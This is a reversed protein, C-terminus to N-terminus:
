GKARVGTSDGSCFFHKVGLGELAKAVRAAKDAEVLAIVVGGRGAGSLKAGLAGATRLRWAIAEIEPSSAGMAYLLGQNMEMLEGLTAFDGAALREAAELVLEEAAQYIKEAIARRREYRELVGAVASGTSRRVGTDAILIKIEEPWKAEIRRFVGARYMIIGGYTSITNDIGSPRVHVAREAALAVANVEDKPPEVGRLYTLASHASAVAIAASSGLGAGVPIASSIRITINNAGPGLSGMLAAFQPSRKDKGHVLGLERSWVEGSGAGTCAEAYLNIAMGLAPLGRVVFHEGFLIVKAPALSCTEM